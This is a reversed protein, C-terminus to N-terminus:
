PLATTSCPLYSSLFLKPQRVSSLLVKENIGYYIVGTVDKIDTWRLNAETDDAYIIVSMFSFNDTSDMPIIKIENAGASLVYRGLNVEDFEAKAGDDSKAVEAASEIVEGAISISVKSTLVAVEATKRVKVGLDVTCEKDSYINLTAQAENKWTFGTIWSGVGEESSVSVGEGTEPTYKKGTIKGYGAVVDFDYRVTGTVPIRVPDPDTPEPDTASSNGGGTSSSSDGAGQSASTSSDNPKNGNCSAFVSLSLCALAMCILLALIGSWVTQKKSTM